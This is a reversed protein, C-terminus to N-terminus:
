RLTFWPDFNNESIKKDKLYENWNISNIGLHILSLNRIHSNDTPFYILLYIPFCTIQASTYICEEHIITGIRSTLTGWLFATAQPFSHAIYNRYRTFDPLVWPKGQRDLSNKKQLRHFVNWLGLDLVIDSSYVSRDKESETYARM